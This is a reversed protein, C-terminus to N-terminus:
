IQNLVGHQLIKMLCESSAGKKTLVDSIQKKKDVWRLSIEQRECMERIASIEVRLRRDLVQKTSSSTEYLSDNDTIAM